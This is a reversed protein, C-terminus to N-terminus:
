LWLRTLNADSRGMSSKSFRAPACARRKKLSLDNHKRAKANM